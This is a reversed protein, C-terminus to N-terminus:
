HLLYLLILLSIILLKDVVAPPVEHEEGVVKRVNNDLNTSFSSRMCISQIFMFM